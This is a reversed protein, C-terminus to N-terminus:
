SFRCAWDDAMSAEAPAAYLDIVANIGVNAAEIHARAADLVETASVEKRRILDALGLADHKVYDAGDM